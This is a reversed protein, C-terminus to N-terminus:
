QKPGRKLGAQRRISALTGPALEDSLTGPVTVKGKKTPHEYQRHSGRQTKLLWGDAVLEAIIDRVKPPM